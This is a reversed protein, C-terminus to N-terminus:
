TRQNSIWNFIHQAKSMTEDYDQNAKKIHEALKQEKSNEGTTSRYGLEIPLSKSRELGKLVRISCHRPIEPLKHINTRNGAAEAGRLEPLSYHFTKNSISEIKNRKSHESPLFIVFDKKQAAKGSAGLQLSKGFSATLVERENHRRIIFSSSPRRPEVNQLVTPNNKYFYLENQTADIPVLSARACRRSKPLILSTPM